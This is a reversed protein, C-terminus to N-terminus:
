VSNKKYNYKSKDIYGDHQLRGILIGVCIGQKKAFHELSTSDFCGANVFDIYDSYDIFYDRAFDNAEKEKDNTSDVDELSIQTYRKNYNDLLHKIEHMFAFWLHDHTKFRGSLFIAPRNKFTTLVGRVKSNSLPERIVLYIGLRNCLKRCSNMSDMADNNLAINKFKFLNKKLNNVSFDINNLLENQYEVENECLKIWLVISEKEGGDQFFEVSLENFVDDFCDFSSIGLIKLIEKAQDIINLSSDSFIEKFKFKKAISKIDMAELNLDFDRKALFERYKAEYNLWYSAPIDKFVFEFKLAMEETLRIKGSLFNSIHKESVNLMKALSKQSIGKEMLYEKILEGTSTFYNYEM